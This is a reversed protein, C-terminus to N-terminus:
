SEEGPTPLGLAQARAIIAATGAIKWASAVIAGKWVSIPVHANSTLNEELEKIARETATGFVAREADTALQKEDTM